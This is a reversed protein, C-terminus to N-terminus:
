QESAKQADPAAKRLREAAHRLRSTEVTVTAHADHNAPIREISNPAAEEVEDLWTVFGVSTGVTVASLPVKTDAKKKLWVHFEVWLEWDRAYGTRTKRPRIRQLYEEADKDLAKLVTAPAPAYAEVVSEPGTDEADVVEVPELETGYLEDVATM